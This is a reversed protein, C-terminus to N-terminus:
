YIIKWKKTGRFDFSNKKDFLAINLGFTSGMKNEDRGILNYINQVTAIFFKDEDNKGFNVAGLVTKTVVMM